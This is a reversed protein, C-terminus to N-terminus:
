LDLFHCQQPEPIVTLAKHIISPQAGLYGVTSAFGLLFGPVSGSTDVGHQQDFPHKRGEADHRGGRSEYYGILVPSALRAFWPISMASARM